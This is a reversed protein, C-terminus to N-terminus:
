SHPVSALRKSVIIYCVLIFAPGGRALTAGSGVFLGTGITGGLAIMQAHRSKLGRKTSQQLVELEGSKACHASKRTKRHTKVVQSLYLLDMDKLRRTISM